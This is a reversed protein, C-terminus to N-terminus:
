KGKGFLREVATMVPVRLNQPDSCYNQLKGVNDQLNQVDIVRNNRKASYYGSIWAAIINPTSVKSHVYQDCTIKSVDMTVQAQASSASVLVLGLVAIALGWRM